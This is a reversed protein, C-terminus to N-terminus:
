SEELWTKKLLSDQSNYGCRIKLLSLKYNENGVSTVAINKYRTTL